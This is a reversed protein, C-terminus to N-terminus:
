RPARAYGILAAKIDEALQKAQQQDLHLYKGDPMDM